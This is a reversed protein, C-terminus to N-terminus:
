KEELMLSYFKVERKEIKKTETFVEAVKCVNGDKDQVSDGICIQSVPKATGDNMLILTEEQLDFYDEMCNM